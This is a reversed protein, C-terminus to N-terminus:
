GCNQCDSGYIEDAWERLGTMIELEVTGDTHWRTCPTTNGEDSCTFGNEELYASLDESPNQAFVTVDEFTKAGFLEQVRTEGCAAATFLSALNHYDDATYKYEGAVPYSTYSGGMDNTSTVAAGSCKSDTADLTLLKADSSEETVMDEEVEVTEEYEVETSCAALLISLLSLSLFIKM